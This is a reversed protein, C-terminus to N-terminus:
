RGFIASKRSLRRVAAFARVPEYSSPRLNSDRGPLHVQAAPSIRVIGNQARQRTEPRHPHHGPADNSGPRM